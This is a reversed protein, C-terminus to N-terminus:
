KISYKMSFLIQDQLDKPIKYKEDAMISKIWEAHEASMTSYTSIRGKFPHIINKIAEGESAYLMLRYPLAEWVPEKLLMLTLKEKLLESETETLLKYIKEAGYRVDHAAIERYAQRAVVERTDQLFRWYVEAGDERLLSGIAHLTVKVIGEDSDELYPKLTEADERAGCEGLGQICVKKDATELRESYYASLDISTHNRLIYRVYARIAGSRSLLLNELGDWYGRIFKYKQEMAKYKVSTSKSNLYSDLEEATVEYNQILLASHM